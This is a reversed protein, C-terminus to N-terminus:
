ALAEKITETVARIEGNTLYPHMPISLVCKSLEETVPLCTNYNSYFPTQHVPPDFYPKCGIDNEILKKMVKDRTEKDRFRLTYKQFVHQFGSPITPTILDKIDHLIRNYKLAIVQRKSIFDEIYWMQAIGIAAQITSLRWNFGMSVFEDGRRGYNRIELLKEYIEDDNTVLIGGEGTTIIKDQCLSFMGCDGFAGVKINNIMAGMSQAADEFLYLGKSEALEKLEMTYKAPCGGYHIPMIARTKDTIKRKVDHYDLGYTETEIDAFVPKAGVARVANATAIFTFSPIIVEDGPKINYAMLMAQLASGGSNFTVAHKVDIYSEIFDEFMRIEEGCAWGIRRNLVTSIEGKIEDLEGSMKFLPIKV